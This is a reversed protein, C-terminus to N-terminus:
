FQKALDWAPKWLVPAKFSAFEVWIFSGMVMIFAITTLSLNEILDDGHHHSYINSTQRRQSLNIPNGVTIWWILPGLHMSRLHMSVKLYQTPSWLILFFNLWFESFVLFRIGGGGLFVRKQCLSEGGLVRFKRFVQNSRNRSDFDCKASDWLVFKSKSYQIISQDSLQSSYIRVRINNYTLSSISVLRSFYPYFFFFCFFLMCSFGNDKSLVLWRMSFLGQFIFLFLLFPLTPTIKKGGTKSLWIWRRISGLRTWNERSVNWKTNVHQSSTYFDNWKMPEATTKKWGGRVFLVLPESDGNSRINPAATVANRECFFFLFGM